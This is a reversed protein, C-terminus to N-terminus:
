PCILDMMDLVQDWGIGAVASDDNVATFLGLPYGPLAIQTSGLGDTNGVGSLRFTGLHQWTERDFFEFDTEPKRQDAVVIFGQGNDVGDNQCTYLIIGEADKEFLGAGFSRQGNRELSALNPDYALIGRSGTEDPIYIIDHYEDALVMELEHDLKTANTQEGSETKYVHVSQDADTTVYVLTDGGAQHYLGIGPEKGLSIQNNVFSRQFELTPLSYVAVTNAPKSVSVFLLDADQDVAVGNVQSDGFTDHKLPPKENSVFPFQWVEVLSNEKATVFLLSDAPDTAEWFAISDVNGGAGNIEFSAQLVAQLPRVIAAPPSTASNSPPTQISHDAKNLAEENTAPDACAALPLIILLLFLFAPEGNCM